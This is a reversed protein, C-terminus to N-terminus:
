RHFKKRAKKQKKGPRNQIYQHWILVGHDGHDCEEGECTRSMQAMRSVSRETETRLESGEQDYVEDIGLTTTAWGKKVETLRVLKWMGAVLHEEQTGHEQLASVDPQDDVIVGFAMVKSVVGPAPM